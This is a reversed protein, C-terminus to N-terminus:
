MIEIESQGSWCEFVQVIENSISKAEKIRKCIEDNRTGDCSILTGLYKHLNVIALVVERIEDEINEKRNMVMIKCKPPKFKFRTEDPFNKSRRKSLILDLQTKM